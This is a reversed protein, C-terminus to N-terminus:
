RQFCLSIPRKWYVAASDIRAATANQQLLDFQHYVLVSCRFNQQVMDVYATVNHLPLISSLHLYIDELM